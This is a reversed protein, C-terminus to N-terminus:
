NHQELLLKNQDNKREIERIKLEYINKEKSFDRLLQHNEQFLAENEKDKSEVLTLLNENEKILIPIKNTIQMLKYQLEKENKEKELIVM